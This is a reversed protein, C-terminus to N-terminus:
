TISSLVIYAACFCLDFLTLFKGTLVKYDVRSKDVLINNAGELFQWLELEGTLDICRLSVWVM